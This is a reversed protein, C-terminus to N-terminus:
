NIGLEKALDRALFGFKYLYDLSGDVQVTNNLLSDLIDQDGSFLFARMADADEFTVKVNWDRPAEQGVTMNGKKFAASAGVTGGSTVISYTGEFGKINKRYKKSLCFALDMGKLLLDLFEDALADDFRKRLRRALLKALGVGAWEGFVYPIPRLVTRKILSAM